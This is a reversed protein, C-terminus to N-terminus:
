KTDDIYESTSAVIDSSIDDIGLGAYLEELAKYLSYSRQDMESSDSPDLIPYFEFALINRRYRATHMAAKVRNTHSDSFLCTHPPKDVGLTDRIIDALIFLNKVFPDNLSYGCFVLTKESVILDFLFSRTRGGTVDYIRAYDRNCFVLESSREQPSNGIRGHLYLIGNWYTQTPIFDEFFSTEPLAQCFFNDWNTTILQTVREHTAIKKIVEHILLKKSGTASYVKSFEEAIMNEFLARGGKTDLVDDHANIYVDFIEPYDEQEELKAIIDPYPYTTVREKVISQAEDIFKKEFKKTIGLFDEVGLYRSTGAGAFIVLNGAEYTERLHSINHWSSRSSM